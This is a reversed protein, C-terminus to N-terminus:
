NEEAGGPIVRLNHHQEFATGTMGAQYWEKVLLHKDVDNQVKRLTREMEASKDEIALVRKELDNWDRKLWAIQGCAVIVAVIMGIRFLWEADGKAVHTTTYYYLAAGLAIPGVVTTVVTMILRM